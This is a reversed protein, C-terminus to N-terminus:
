QVLILTSLSAVDMDEPWRASPLDFSFKISIM